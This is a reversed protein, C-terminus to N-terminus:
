CLELSNEVAIKNQHCSRVLHVWFFYEWHTMLYESIHKWKCEEECNELDSKKKKAFLHNKVSYEVCDVTTVCRSVGSIRWITEEAQNGKCGKNQQMWHHSEPCAFMTLKVQPHNHLFADRLSSKVYKSTIPPKIGGKNQAENRQDKRVGTM